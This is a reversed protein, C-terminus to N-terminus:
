DLLARIPGPRDPVPFARRLESQSRGVSSRRARALKERDHRQISRAERDSGAPGGRLPHRRTGHRRGRAAGPVNGSGLRRPVGFATHRFARVTSAPATQVPVFVSQILPPAPRAPEAVEGPRWLGGKVSLEGPGIMAREGGPPTWYVELYGQGRAWFYQLELRHTGPSLEVQGREDRPPGDGHRNDVVLKGDVFITSGGNSFVDFQYQGRRVARLDGKWCAMLPGPSGLAGPADRFGLFGDLRRQIVTSANAGCLSQGVKEQGKGAFPRVEGLLSRGPGSWLFRKPVPAPESNGTSWQVLVKSDSRPLTGALFTDHVGEALVVDTERPTGGRSALVPAEDITLSAPGSSELRIRYRGFAPVVVSGKWRARVPYVLGTPVPSSLGFSGERRVIPAGRAPVYSAELTRRAEIQERKVRYYTFLHTENGSPGYLFRGEQGGPYYARILPLYQQAVSWVIFVADHNENDLIPLTASINPADQGSTGYNLFRNVGHGWYIFHAGLDYYKPARRGEQQVAANLERVFYAQGTTEAFPRQGLYRVYYDTANQWTLFAALSLLAVSSVTQGTRPGWPSRGAEGCVRVLETALKDLVVAAFLALIPIIGVLRAMYPADITLVGGVLVTPWFWLSLLAMRTDRWRWLAWAIGLVVLTAEIPKTVPEQTFSYVGSADFHYTLISLTRKLQGWLVRPWFGDRSLTISLRSREFAIPLPLTDGPRPVQVGLYLPDHGAAYGAAMRDPHNFVLKEQARSDWQPRHDRYYAIWPTAFAVSAIVYALVCPVYPRVERLERRIAAVVADARGPRPYGLRLSRYRHPLGAVPTLVMLYGIFAAAVIPTLRGGLYFYLCSAHAYGALAFLIPRRNSLGRFFLFFGTVLLLPTTINSFEQRSFHIAVDSIALFLSALIATRVGFLQRVLPYFPLIMLAGALASFMRLGALGTGFLKMGIAVGWYYFNPQGFWGTRFPPSPHGELIRMADMGVEGEDGHMGSTWDGLRYLRLGLALAFIAVFISIELTRPLRLDTREEVEAGSTRLGTGNRWQDGAFAGALLALSALWGLGASVSDYFNRRLYVVSFLNLLLALFVILYSLAKFRWAQRSESPSERAGKSAKAISKVHFDSLLNKNRYTGRWALILLLIGAAYWRTGQPRTVENQVLTQGHFALGCALGGLV